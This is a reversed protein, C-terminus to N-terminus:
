KSKTETLRKFYEDIFQRYGDPGQERMGQLLQERLRPHLKLVANRRDLPMQSLEAELAPDDMTGGHLNGQPLNQGSMPPRQGNAQMGGMQRMQAVMALAQQMAPSQLMQALPDEQGGHAQGSPSAHPQGSLAQELQHLMNELSHEDSALSQDAEHLDELHGAQRAALDDRQEAADGPKGHHPRKRLPRIKKAYRPDIKPRPGGLAPMYKPEDEDDDDLKKDTKATASKKGQTAKQADAAEDPDEENPRVFQEDQDPTYPADPFTPRRKMRKLKGAQQLKKVRELLQALQKDLDAQATAKAAMAADPTKRTDQYLQQQRDAHHKLQDRLAALAERLDELDRATLSANLGLMEKQLQALAKELNERMEKRAKALADMRAKMAELDKQLRDSRQKLDAVAPDPRAGTAGQQMRAALDQLPNVAMREFAQQLAAMERSMEAPMLKSKQVQEAIRDLDGKVQQGLQVNQNESGSLQALERRLEQLAKETAADLKLPQPAANAPSTSHTAAAQEAKEKAARVKNEVSAYKAELKTVASRVKAQESILKALKEQFTDTGKDLNALEKDAANQDNVIRVTFDPTRAMQGKRDYAEIHYRLWEGLKCDLGPLDLTSAVRDSRAPRAYKKLPLGIFGGAGNRQYVVVVRDLGYDDSATVVLPLAEPHSLVVDGAPRELTIQPPLDPLAHYKAERMTKNPYGLENRLEVRYLGDTELPFRGSWEGEHMPKMPLPHTVVLVPPLSGARGWACSGGLTQFSMGRLIRGELGVSEAPVQLRMWRGGAPLPGMARCSPQGPQGRAIKASGWYARHEWNSGDFWELMIAQPMQEVPLYVYAFLTDKSGVLLGHAANQFLHGAPAVSGTPPRGIHVQRGAHKEWTWVGQPQAGAPLAGDLWVQEKEEGSDPKPGTWALLQIDGAALNGEADVLVEVQSGQPGAVDTMGPPNAKPDLGMYDPYHLVTRISGIVPRDLVRIHYQKSWTGGGHIRYTFGNEFGADLGRVRTTWRGDQQKDLDRWISKDGAASRMELQLTKPEGRNVHAAFVMDDDRLVKVDGPEVTYSVDSAPPIDAFPQFIRAMATPMRDSLLFLTLLLATAGSLAFLGARRVRAMDVVRRARFGRIREIAEQVLRRYFAPSGGVVSGNASLDICSVLRNHIGPIHAEIRRAIRGASLSRCLPWVVGMLFFWVTPLVFLLLGTLRLAPLLPWLLDLGSVVLLTATALGVTVGLGVLVWSSRLLTRTRRILHWIPRTDPTEDAQQHAM